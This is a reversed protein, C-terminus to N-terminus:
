RLFNVNKVRFFEGIKKLFNREFTVKQHLVYSKLCWKPPLKSSLISIQALHRRARGGTGQGPQGPLYVCFWVGLGKHRQGSPM